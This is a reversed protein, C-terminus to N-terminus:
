ADAHVKLTLQYENWIDLPTINAHYEQSGDDIYVVDDIISVIWNSRSPLPAEFFDSDPFIGRFFLIEDVWNSKSGRLEHCFHNLQDDSEFYVRYETSVPVSGGELFDVRDSLALRLKKKEIRGVQGWTLLNGVVDRRFFTPFEPSFLGESFELNESYCHLFFLVKSRLMTFTEEPHKGLKFKIKEYCNRDVHNLEISFSYFGDVFSM